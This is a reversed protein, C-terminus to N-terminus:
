ALSACFSGIPFRSSLAIAFSVLRLTSCLAPATALPSAKGNTRRAAAAPGAAEPLM